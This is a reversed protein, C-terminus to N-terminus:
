IIKLYKVAQESNPQMIVQRKLLYRFNFFTMM